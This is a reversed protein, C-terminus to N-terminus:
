RAGKKQLFTLIGGLWGEPMAKHAFIQNFMTEIIPILWESNVKFIGATLEDYGVSKRNSLKTIAQTIEHENAIHGLNSIQRKREKSSNAYQQVKSNRHKYNFESGGNICEGLQEENRWADPTICNVAWNERMRAFREKIYVQMTKLNIHTERQVNGENDKLIMNGRRTNQKSQKLENIRQWVIRANGKKQGDQIERTIIKVYANEM